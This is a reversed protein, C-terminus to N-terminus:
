LTFIIFADYRCNNECSCWQLHQAGIIVCYIIVHLSSALRHPMCSYDFTVPIESASDSIWTDATRKQCKVWKPTPVGYPSMSRCPGNETGQKSYAWVISLWDCALNSFYGARHNALCLRLKSRALSLFRARSSCQSLYHSTAQRSWAMVQDLASLDDTPNEPM